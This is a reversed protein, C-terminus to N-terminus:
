NEHSNLTCNIEDEDEPEFEIRQHEIREKGESHRVSSDVFTQLLKDISVMGLRWIFDM